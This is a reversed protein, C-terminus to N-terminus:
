TWYVSIQEGTVINIKGPFVVEICKEGAGSGLGGPYFPEARVQELYQFQNNLTSNLSLINWM